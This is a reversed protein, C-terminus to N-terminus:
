ANPDIVMLTQGFEVPGADDVLIHTVVGSYDARISAMLKMVEIICVTTDPTVRQGVTVFPPAGPEPSRYFTGVMSSKVMCAGVPFADSSSSVAADTENKASEQEKLLTPPQSLVAKPPDISVARQQAVPSLTAGHKRLDVEVDGYKLHFESFETSSEFVKVMQLLEDYSLNKDSL